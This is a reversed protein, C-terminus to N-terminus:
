SSIKIKTDIITLNLDTMVLHLIMFYVFHSSDTDGASDTARVSDTNGTVREKVPKNKSIMM